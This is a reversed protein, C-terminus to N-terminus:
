RYRYVQRQLPVFVPRPVIPLIRIFCTLRRGQKTLLLHGGPQGCRSAAVAPRTDALDAVMADAEFTGASAGLERAEAGLLRGRYSAEILAGTRGLRIWM